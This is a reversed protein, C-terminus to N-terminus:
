KMKAGAAPEDVVVVVGVVVVVVMVATVVEVVVVDDVVIAVVVVVLVVELVVATVVVLEVVVLLVAVEVELVALFACITMSDWGTKFATILNPSDSLDTCALHPIPPSAPSIIFPTM